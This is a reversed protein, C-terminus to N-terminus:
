VEITIAFVLIPVFYPILNQMITQDEWELGDWWEQAGHIKQLSNSIGAKSDFPLKGLNPCYKVTM